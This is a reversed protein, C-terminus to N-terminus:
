LGFLIGTSSTFHLYVTQKHLHPASGGLLVTCGSAMDSKLVWGRELSRARIHFLCLAHTVSLRRNLERQQIQQERNQRSSKMIFQQEWSTQSVRQFSGPGKKMFTATIVFNNIHQERREALPWWALSLSDSTKEPRQSFEDPRKWGESKSLRYRKRQREVRWEWIVGLGWEWERKEM